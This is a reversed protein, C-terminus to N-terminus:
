QEDPLRDLEAAERSFGVTDAVIYLPRQKVEEYIRGVYEGIIGLTILQVGGIFLIAVILSAWGPVPHDTFLKLGIAYLLYCFGVAAASFGLYTALQLPLFSFSAVGDFAFRVMKRLPYKTEGAYRVERVFAVATQEFGIWSSLGRVFRQRERLESLATVARRSM